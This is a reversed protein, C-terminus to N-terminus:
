DWNEMEAVEGQKAQNSAIDWWDLSFEFIMTESTEVLMLEREQANVEQAAMALILRTAGRILFRQRANMERYEVRGLVRYANFRVKLSVVRVGLSEAEREMLRWYFETGRPVSM